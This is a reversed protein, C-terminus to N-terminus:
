LRIVEAVEWERTRVLGCGERGFAAVKSALHVTVDEVAQGDIHVVERELQYDKPPSTQGIVLNPLNRSQQAIDLTILICILSVILKPHWESFPWDKHKQYVKV